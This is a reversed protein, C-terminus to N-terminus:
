HKLLAWLERVVEALAVVAGGIAAVLRWRATRGPVGSAVLEDVSPLKGRHAEAAKVEPVTSPRDGAAKRADYIAQRREHQVLALRRRMDAVARVAGPGVSPIALESGSPVVPTRTSPPDSDPM